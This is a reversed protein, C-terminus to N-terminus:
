LLLHHQLVRLMNNKTLRCSCANLCNLIVTCIWLFGIWPSPYLFYYSVSRKDFIVWVLTDWEIQLIKYNKIRMWVLLLKASVFQVNERQIISWNLLPIFPFLSIFVFFYLFCVRPSRTLNFLLQSVVQMVFRYNRVLAKFCGLMVYYYYSPYCKGHPFNLFLLM